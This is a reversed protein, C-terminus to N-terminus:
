VCNEWLFFNNTKTRVIVSHTGCASIKTYGTYIDTICIKKIIYKTKCRIFRKPLLIAGKSLPKTFIDGLQEPQFTNCILFVKEVNKEHLIIGYM